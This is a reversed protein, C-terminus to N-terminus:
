VRMCAGVCVGHVGGGGCVMSVGCVCVFVAHVGWVHMCVVGVCVCVCVCAHVAGWVCVGWVRGEVCVCLCPTCVVCVCM